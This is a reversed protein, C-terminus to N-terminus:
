FRDSDGERCDAKRRLDDEGTLVRMEFRIFEPEALIAAGVKAARPAFVGVIVHPRNDLRHRGEELPARVEEDDLSVRRAGEASRKGSRRSIHGNGMLSVLVFLWWFVGWLTM